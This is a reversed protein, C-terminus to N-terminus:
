YVFAETEHFTTIQHDQFDVKSAGHFNRLIYEILEKKSYDMISELLLRGNEVSLAYVYGLLESQEMELLEAVSKLALKKKEQSAM